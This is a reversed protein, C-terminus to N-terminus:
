YLHRSAASIRVKFEAFAFARGLCLKPRLTLYHNTYLAYRTTSAKAYGDGFTLVHGPVQISEASKPITGDLWREPIFIKSKPGWIDPSTNIGDRVPMFIDQGPEVLVEKM